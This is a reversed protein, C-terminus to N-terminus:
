GPGAAEGGDPRAFGDVPEAGAGPPAAGLDGRAAAYGDVRGARYAVREGPTAFRPVNPPGDAADGRELGGDREAADERQAPDDTAAPAPAQIAASGPVRRFMSPSTPEFRLVLDVDGFAETFRLGAPLQGLAAYLIETPSSARLEVTRGDGDGDGDGFGPLRRRRVPLRRDASRGDETPYEVGPPPGIDPDDLV